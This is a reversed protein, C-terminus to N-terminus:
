VHERSNPVPNASNPCVSLLGPASDNHRCIEATTSQPPFTNRSKASQNTQPDRCNQLSVPNNRDFM